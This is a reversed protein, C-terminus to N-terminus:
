AAKAGPQSTPAEWVWPLLEDLEHAPHGDIRALVDA